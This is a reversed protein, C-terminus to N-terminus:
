NSPHNIKEKYHEANLHKESLNKYRFYRFSFNEM